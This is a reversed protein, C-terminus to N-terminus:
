VPEKDMVVTVEYDDAALWQAARSIAADVMATFFDAGSADLAELQAEDFRLDHDPLRLLRLAHRGGLPRRLLGRGAHEGRGRRADEELDKALGEVASEVRWLADRVPNPYGERSSREWSVVQSNTVEVDRVRLANALGVIHRREMCCAVRLARSEPGTLPRGRSGILTRFTM